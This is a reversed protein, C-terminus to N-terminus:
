LVETLSQGTIETPQNLNLRNIITATVDALVGIPQAAAWAIKADSASVVLDRKKDPFALIFPVPNTTHEKDIEGTQLNIKQEANGHDATVILDAELDFVCRALKELNEDVAEVAEITAQLNGTHGVMDANAFNIVSFIPKEKKFYNIFQDTLEDASM